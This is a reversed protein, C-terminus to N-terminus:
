DSETKRVLLVQGTLEARRFAALEEETGYSVVLGKHTTGETMRDVSEVSAVPFSRWEGGVSLAVEDGAKVEGRLLDGVLVYGIGSVAFSAVVRFEAAFPYM